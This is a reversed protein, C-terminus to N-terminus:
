VLASPPMTPKPAISCAWLDRTSIGILDNHEKLKGISGAASHNQPQSLGQCFHTGPIKRPHLARCVRLASLRVLM